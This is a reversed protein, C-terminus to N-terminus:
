GVKFSAARALVRRLIGKEDVEVARAASLNRVWVSARSFCLFSRARLTSPMLRCVSRIADPVVDAGIATVADAGPATQPEPVPVPLMGRFVLTM